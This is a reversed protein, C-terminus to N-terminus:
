NSPLRRLVAALALAAAKSCPPNETILRLGHFQFHFSHCCWLLRFIPPCRGAAYVIKRQLAITLHFTLLKLISSVKCLFVCLANAERRTGMLAIRVAESSVRLSTKKKTRNGLPSVSLFFSMQKQVYFRRM